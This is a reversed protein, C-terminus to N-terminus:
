LGLRLSTRDRPSEDNDVLIGLSSLDDLNIAGVKPAAGVAYRSGGLMQAEPRIRPEHERNLGAAHELTEIIMPEPFGSVADDDFHAPHRRARRPPENTEQGVLM